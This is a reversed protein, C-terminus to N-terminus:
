RVSPAPVGMEKAAQAQQLPDDAMEV